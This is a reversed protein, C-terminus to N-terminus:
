YVIIISARKQYPRATKLFWFSLIGTKYEAKVFDTDINEPLLLERNFCEYNFSHKSYKENQMSGSEKHLASISLYGQQTISAFFDERQLGPVALEIKYYETTESINCAPSSAGEHPKLLEEAIAELKFQMPTYEGPYASIEQSYSNPIQM